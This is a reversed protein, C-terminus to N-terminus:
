LDVAPTTTDASSGLTFSVGGGAMAKQSSQNIRGTIQVSVVDGDAWAVAAASAATSEKSNATNWVAEGGTKLTVEVPVVTRSLNFIKVKEGVNGSTVKVSINKGKVPDAM